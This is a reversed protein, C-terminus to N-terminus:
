MAAQLRNKRADSRMLDVGARITARDGHDLADAACERRVPCRGCTELHYMSLPGDDWRAPDANLCAAREWWKM